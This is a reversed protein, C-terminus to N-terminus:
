RCARSLDPLPEPSRVSRSKRGRLEELVRADASDRCPRTAGVDALIEDLADAARGSPLPYDAVQRTTAAHEPAFGACPANLRELSFDDCPLGRRDPRPPGVNERLFVRIPGLSPPNAFIMIPVKPRRPGPLWLNGIADLEISWRSSQNWLRTGYIANYIVNQVLEYRGVGALEEGGSGSASQRLGTCIQPNRNANNAFVNRYWTVDSVDGAVLMGSTGPRHEPAEAILSHQITVRRVPGTPDYGYMEICEDTAWSCSVHDILVDAGGGIGLGDHTETPHSGRLRIHRVVLNDGQLVLSYNWIAIGGNPADSGDITVNPGRVVLNHTLRISGSVRFRVIRNGGSLADRLSGPIVPAGPGNDALSRVEVVPHGAGGTASGGFGVGTAQAAIASALWLGGILTTRPLKCRRM